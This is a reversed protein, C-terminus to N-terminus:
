YRFQAWTSDFPMVDAQLQEAAQWLVARGPQSVCKIGLTMHHCGLSYEQVPNCPSSCFGIMKIGAIPDQEIM